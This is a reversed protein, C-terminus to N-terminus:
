DCKGRESASSITGIAAGEPYPTVNAGVAVTALWAAFAENPSVDDSMRAIGRTANTGIRFEDCDEAVSATQGDAGTWLVVVPTSPLGGEFAVLCRAGARVSVKRGPSAGRLPVGTLYPLAASDLQLDLTGDSAQSLVQAPFLAQYRAGALVNNVLADLASNARDRPQTAQEPEYWVRTRMEAGDALHEVYSVRRGDFLTGPTIAGSLTEASLEDCADSPSSSVLEGPADSEPWTENGVWLTGDSLVRWTAGLPALLRALEDGATGASRVWYPLVSDLLSGLVTSSLTEGTERCLDALVTRLTANKYYRPPLARSLGDAGGILLVETYGEFTGSRATRVTGTLALTDEATRLTQLGVLATDTDLLLEARWVGVRPVSVRATLVPETGLLLEAM